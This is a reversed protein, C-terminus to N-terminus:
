RGPATVPVRVPRGQWSRLASSVVAAAPRGRTDFPDDGGRSASGWKWFYAGAIGDFPEMAAVTAALCLRQMELDLGPGGEDWPRVAAEPNPAYGLEALLVPRGFRKGLAALSGLAQTAGARLTTADRTPTKALPAYFSVAILDLADWFPVREAEDWNAGYSVLGGYVKRVRGIITRWRVPDAATSSALEHGVFVGDMGERDALLAWHLALAEYGDFFRAWGSPTFALEGAWGRTWVHPKLWVKLGLARARAAAECVSEDSEGDPGSEISSALLPERPDPLWAFPTLSVWNAGAEKIRALERACEASLYGRELGVAHAVCVGRQFGDAPRWSARRSALLQRQGDRSRAIALDRYRAQVGAVPVGAARCLSDLTGPPDSKLLALLATRRAAPAAAELVAAMLLARAPTMVLPSRWERDRRAAEVATPLLGGGYLRALARDLPEGEFRAAFHTAAPRLFRSAESAGNQKFRVAAVSWLDLASRGAPRAAHVTREAVHEAHTDRTQVGKEELSRYLVLSVRPAAANATFGAADLRALLADGLALLDAVGGTSAAARVSLARGNTPRLLTAFRAREAERDRDLTADYRWPKGGDHAFRGSRALEGDRVIRYDDDGFMFGGRRAVAESSNGALLLLFRQPAYPNPWSLQIADGPKDYLRDQWRFGTAEFRVPLASAIRQTWSNERPGGFLFVPSAAFAAEGLSQDSVVQSTDGGFLRRAVVMARARLVASQRPDRTGYVFKFAPAGQLAAEMQARTYRPPQLTAARVPACAILLATLGALVGRM